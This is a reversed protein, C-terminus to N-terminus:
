GANNARGPHMATVLPHFLITGNNAVTLDLKGDGNLDGATISRTNTGVSYSVATQFTGDGNGLLISVTSSNTVALDLKGDRNFDGITVSGAQGGAEYNVATQFTGDGNGLLISVISSNAVALDLKGDGNFDGLTVSCPYNGVAINVATEFSLDAQASSAMGMSALMLFLVFIWIKWEIRKRVASM